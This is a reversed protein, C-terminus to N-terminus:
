RIEQPHRIRFIRAQGPRLTLRSMDAAANTRHLEEAVEGQVQLNLVRGEAAVNVAVLVSEPVGPRLYAFTGDKESLHLIDIRDGHLARHTVRLRILERFKELMEARAPQERLQWQLPNPGVVKATMEGWEQGAYLMPIGPVTLTVAAGAHHRTFAEATSYGKELLERVFREEDHSEIYPVRQFGNVYAHNRPDLIERMKEPEEIRGESLIKRMRWRFHGDWESDLETGKIMDPESPLNEAIQIVGPDVENVVYSMWSAGWDKYGSWKVWQTADYRFGDVGWHRVWHTLTDQIYRKLAPSQQDLKPFGWNFETFPMTYPNLEPDGLMRNLPADGDIHNLVLDAVFAIGRSRAAELLERFDEPRGYSREIAMHFAPNYGWSVAGPFATVPLPEIANVGLAAIYDLVSTLGRYSGPPAVDPISLEYIVWTAPDPAQWPAAGGDLTNLLTWAHEPLHSPRGEPTEWRVDKSWPDAFFAEGNLKFRYALVGPTDPIEALWHGDATKKMFATKAPQGEAQWEIEMFRAVPAYLVVRWDGTETRAAGYATDAPLDEASEIKPIKWIRRSGTSLHGERLLRVKIDHPGYDWGGADLEHVLSDGQVSALETGGLYIRIEDAPPNSGVGIKVKGGRLTEGPVIWQLQAADPHPVVAVNYNAGSKSDWRNGWRIVAHVSTVVQEPRDFPGLVLSSIGNVAEPLPTEVAKGNEALVTGEPWYVRDPLEWSGEPSNVGWHLVGNGEDNRIRLTIVDSPHPMEPQFTLRERPPLYAALTEVTACIEADPDVDTLRYTLTNSLTEGPALFVEASQTEIESYGLGKNSYMVVPCGGDPVEGQGLGGEAQILLMQGGRRAAIWHGGTGLKHEGQVGARYVLAQDCQQLLNGYDRDFNLWRYGGGAFDGPDNGMLVLDAAGIQSIQWLTVPVKSAQIRTISQRVRLLADGAAALEFRREVRAFVPDGLDRRLRIVVGGAATTEVESFWHARDLLRMPPWDHGNMATWRSQHVAWLWDGGYNLWDGEEEPPLQGVLEENFRFFNEGGPKGLHVLRGTQPLVVIELAGNAAQIAGEWGRYNMPRTEAQAWLSLRCLMLGFLMFIRQTM